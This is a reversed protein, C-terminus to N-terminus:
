LVSEKLLGFAVQSEGRNRGRKWSWTQKSNVPFLPHSSGARQWRMAHMHSFPCAASTAPAPSNANAITATPIIPSPYLKKRLRTDAMCGPSDQSTTVM